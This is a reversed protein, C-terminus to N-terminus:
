NTGARLAVVPETRAARLAPYLAAVVATTAGIVPGLVLLKPDLVATWSNAAATIVVAGLGVLSGLLGGFLGTIGAEALFQCAIHRPTAGLSRRLGIEGLREMVTVFTTNAIGVMGVILCVAALLLFLSRLDGSISGRLVIPDPPAVVEFRDSSAPDVARIAQEAVVTAAGPRVKVWCEANAGVAPDGWFKQATSTPVMVDGLLESHQDVKGLIGVVVFPIGGIDITPANALTSIGLDRAVVPGIVAV